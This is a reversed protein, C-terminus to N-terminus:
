HVSRFSFVSYLRDVELGEVRPCVVMRLKRMGDLVKPIGEDDVDHERWVITHCTDNDLVDGFDDISHASWIVSINPTVSSTDIGQEFNRILLSRIAFHPAFFHLHV